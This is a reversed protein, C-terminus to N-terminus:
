ARRAVQAPGPRCAHGRVGCRTTGPVRGGRWGSDALFIAMMAEKEGHSVQFMRPRM